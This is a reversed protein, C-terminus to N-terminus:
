AFVGAFNGRVPKEGQNIVQRVGVPFHLPGGVLFEVDFNCHDLRDLAELLCGQIIDNGIIEPHPPSGPLAVRGAVGDVEGCVTRRRLLSRGRGRSNLRLRHRTRRDGGLGPVGALRIRFGSSCRFGVAAGSGAAAGLGARRDAERSPGAPVQSSTFCLSIM